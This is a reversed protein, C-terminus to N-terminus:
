KDFTITLRNHNALRTYSLSKALQRTLFIGLGGANRLEAPQTIDPNAVETPDFAVGRDDVVFILEDDRCEMTVEIPMGKQEPYAYKMSNVIVEELALKIQFLRDATIGLEQQWRLLWTHLEPIRHTDNTLHLCYM